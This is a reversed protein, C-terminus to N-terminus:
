MMAKNIIMDTHESTAAFDKSLRSFGVRLILTRESSNLKEKKFACFSVYLYKAVVVSCLMESQQMYM